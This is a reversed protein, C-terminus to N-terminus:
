KNKNKNGAKVELQRMKVHDGMRQKAVDARAQVGALTSQLDAKFKAQEGAKIAKDEAAAKNLETETVGIKNKIGAQVIQRELTENTGKLQKITEEMQAIQNQLQYYLAKRKIVAEKDPIDLEAMAAIDDILGVQYLEKYEQAKAWKNSPLTGGAVFKLDYSFDGLENWRGAVDGLDNYVPINIEHKKVEQTDPNVIRVAKYAKYNIKALQLWIKGMYEMCPDVVEGVWSRIRRTGFEDAAVMGRYTSESPDMKGQMSPLAGLTEEIFRGGSEVIQFFATNLQLPVIEHPPESGPNVPLLGGPMSVNSQWTNLDISGVYYWFRLSSGLSANHIMLQHAKNIEEQQGVVLKVASICYPTGTHIFPLGVIPIDTIDLIKSDLYIDDGISYCVEVQNKWFPVAEVVTEQFDKNTSLTKFDKDPIIRVRIASVAEVEKALLDQRYKHVQEQAQMQLKQVEFQAREQSMEGSKMADAVTIMADQLQFQVQRQFLQTDANVRQVITAMVTKDPQTRMSVNWFKSKIKFYGEYYDVYDNEGKKQGVSDMIQNIDGQFSVNSSTENRSSYGDVHEDNCSAPWIKDAFDPLLNVLIGRKINKKILKFGADRQFIDTSAPDVYVDTWPVYGFLVDGQGNDASPDFYVNWYGISCTLADRVVQSFVVRGSSADWCYEFMGNVVAALDVDSGERGVAIPKPNNATVFYRLTEIAPTIKNVIFTPMGASSLAKEEDATLQDGLSFELCKQMDRRWKDYRGSKISNYLDRNRTAKTKDPSEDNIKNGLATNDM